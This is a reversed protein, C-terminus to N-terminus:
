LDRDLRNRLEGLATEAARRVAPEPDDIATHVAPAHEAEGVAGLARVAAVRVRPVPDDVLEALGDGAEGIERLKAVKAAMERVRWAPDALARVVAPGARPLWVYLLARAAWVRPWYEQGREALPGRRLEAAAHRGGLWTVPPLEPDDYAVVGALLEAAWAAILDQGHPRRLSGCDTGATGCGTRGTGTRDCDQVTGPRLWCTARQFTPAM